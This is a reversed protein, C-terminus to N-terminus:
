LSENNPSFENFKLHVFKDGYKDVESQIEERTYGSRIHKVHIIPLDNIHHFSFEVRWTRYSLCYVNEQSPDNQQVRKRCSDLPDFELQSQIFGRLQEVGQNELWVLQQEALQSFEVQHRDSELGEMWGGSAEPFSDAYPIYPKIDLIPSGDLLDFSRVFIRRGEISVLEVATLGIANPRHPSRTAFVGRKVRPGRPPMVMPKWNKNRDFQYLLWIRSFGSLSDLAQEFCQGPELEIMGIDEPNGLTGQRRAEYRFRTPGHFIGIPKLIPDANGSSTVNTSVNGNGSSVSKSTTTDLNRLNSLNVTQNANKNRQARWSNAAIGFAIGVNLSNKRGYLTIRVIKDASALTELDLGFRENGLLLACKEPWEFDALDTANETTELAVITYGASKLNQIATQAHPVAEWPIMTDTGMSTRATKEQDPTPTYGTLLVRELGLAETTRLIAGVNFASRLNDAIVVFPATAQGSESDSLNSRDGEVVCIEDDRLAKGLLREFPVLIAALHRASMNPTLDRTHFSLRALEPSFSSATAAILTRLEDLGQQPWQKELRHGCDLIARLLRLDEPRLDM